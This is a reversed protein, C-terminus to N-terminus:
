IIQLGCATCYDAWQQMVPKRQELYNSRNYVRRLKGSVRHALVAEVVDPNIGQENLYTSIMARTGHSTMKDKYGQRKLMVNLTKQNMPYDKLRQKSQFVFRRGGTEQQMIQLVQLAQASLPVSHPRKHDKQGKMKEAPIHWIANEWDIEAWEVSVSESPRVGTLLHWCFLLYNQLKIKRNKRANELASIFGSLAQPALSVVNQSMRFYFAKRAKHCNHSEILGTNEAFDMISTVSHLVAELTPSKGADALPRFIEILRPSNIQTIPMNGLASFAHRELRNWELAMSIEQVRPRKFEDRWREALNLFTVTRSESQGQRAALWIKPDIKDALLAKFLTRMERADTLSMVPFKAFTLSSRTQQNPKRYSFIWVKDKQNVQLSLGGGDHLRNAPPYDRNHMAQICQAQTLPPILKAM